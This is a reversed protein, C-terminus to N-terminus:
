SRKRLAVLQKQADELRRSIIGVESSAGINEFAEVSKQFAQIANGWLTEDEKIMAIGGLAFGLNHQAAAWLLPTRDHTTASLANRCAAAAQELLGIDSQRRGLLALAYGMDSQTAAWRLMNEDKPWEGLAARFALVANNLEVTGSNREGQSVLQRGLEYQEEAWADSVKQQSTADAAATALGSGRSSTDPAIAADVDVSLAEFQYLGKSRDRDELDGPNISVEAVSLDVDSAARETVPTEAQRADDKVTIAGKSTTREANDLRASAVEHRIALDALKRDLSEALERRAEITKTLSEFDKEFDAVHEEFELRRSKLISLDREIETTKRVQQRLTNLSAKAHEDAVLRDSKLQVLEARRDLIEAEIASLEAEADTLQQKTVGDSARGPERDSATALKEELNSIEALLRSSEQRWIDRETEHRAASYAGTLIALAAIVAFLAATKM